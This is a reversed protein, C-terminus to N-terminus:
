AAAGSIVAAWGEQVASIGKDLSRVEAHVGVFTSFLECSFLVGCACEVFVSALLFSEPRLWSYSLFDFLFSPCCGPDTPPSRTTASFSHRSRCLRTEANTCEQIHESSVAVEMGRM